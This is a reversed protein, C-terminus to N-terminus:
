QQQQNCGFKIPDTKVIHISNFQISINPCDGSSDNIRSSEIRLLSPSEKKRPVVRRTHSRVTPSRAEPHAGADADAFKDTVPCGRLVFVRSLSFEFSVTTTPHVFPHISPYISFLVFQVVFM